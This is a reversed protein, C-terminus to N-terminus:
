DNLQGKIMRQTEDWKTGLYTVYEAATMFRAETEFHYLWGQGYGDVNIQSPDNLLVDNFQGLRGDAPPYLSSVAKSSEVQGIEQQYKVPSNADVTWDLFYVDQLLRVSYASFGVRFGGPAEQLWLHNKSYLRDQPIQAEFKGM